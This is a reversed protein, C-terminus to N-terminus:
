RRGGHGDGVSATFTMASPECVPRAREIMSAVQAESVEAWGSFHREFLEWVVDDPIGRGAASAVVTWATDNRCGEVAEGLVIAAARKWSGHLTTLMALREGITQPGGNGGPRNQRTPLLRRPVVKFLEASFRDLQARTVLPITDSDPAVDLPSRQPWIYPRGAKEHWGYAIFQGSGSFIELPHLKRSRIQDAGRYIRIQKPAFGIRVLPSTGLIDNALADAFAAQEQDIIDLDIAVIESQVALCCCYNDVPQYDNIAAALDAGDWEAHNLGPWGRMAPTKSAQSGPFPRWGLEALPQAVAAFTIPAGM